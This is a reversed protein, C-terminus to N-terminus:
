GAEVPRVRTAVFRFTGQDRREYEVDVQQGEDLSRYGERDIASYHVWIDWPATRDCSLSGIGEEDRWRKM